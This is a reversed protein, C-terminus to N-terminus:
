PTYEQVTRNTLLAKAVDDPDFRWRGGVRIAPIAGSAAWRIVSRRTVGLTTAVGESDVLTPAM